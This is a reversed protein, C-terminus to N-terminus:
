HNKITWVDEIPNGVAATLSCLASIYVPVRVCNQATTHSPTDIPHLTATALRADWMSEAPCSLSTRIGTTLM